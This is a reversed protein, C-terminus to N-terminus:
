VRLINNILIFQIGAQQLSISKPASLAFVFAAFEGADTFNIPKTFDTVVSAVIAYKTGDRRSEHDFDVYEVQLLDVMTQCMSLRACDLNGLTSRWTKFTAPTPNRCFKVFLTRNSEFVSGIKMDEEVSLFHLINRTDRGALGEVLQGVETSSM